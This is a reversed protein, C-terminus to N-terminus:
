EGGQLEAIFARAMIRGSTELEAVKEVEEEVTLDNDILASALKEVDAENYDTGYEAELMEESLSAYKELVEVRDQMVEDAEATKQMNEYTQLLSM